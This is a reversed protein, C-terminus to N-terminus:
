VLTISDLLETINLSQTETKPLIFSLDNVRITICCARDRIRKIYYNM